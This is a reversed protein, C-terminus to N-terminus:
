AVEDVHKRKLALVCLGLALLLGGTPEPIAAGFHYTKTVGTTSMDEYIFGGSMLDSYTVAQSTAIVNGELDYLELFYSTDPATNVVKSYYEAGLNTTEPFTAQDWVITESTNGITLYEKNSDSDEAAVMVYAFKVEASVPDLTWHVYGGRTVSSAASAAFGLALVTVLAFIKKM